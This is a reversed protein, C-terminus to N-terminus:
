WRLAKRNLMGVGLKLSRDMLALTKEKHKSTDQMWYSLVGLFYIGFVYPGLEVLLPVKKCEPSTELIKQIFKLYRINLAQSDLNMLNLRSGPQMARFIVAGIFKEYSALFALQREVVFFLKEDLSAKQIRKDRRYAEMVTQLEKDFFFLALDDKTKFYNFITGEAVGAKRAIQKTSTREFGLKNFLDLAVALIKEKTLAKKEARRRPKAVKNAM